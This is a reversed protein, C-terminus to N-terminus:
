MWCCRAFLSLYVGRSFGNSESTKCEFPEVNRREGGSRCIGGTDGSREGPIGCVAARHSAISFCRPKGTTTSSFKRQYYPRLSHRAYLLHQNTCQALGTYSSKAILSDPLPVCDIVFITYEGQCIGGNHMGM